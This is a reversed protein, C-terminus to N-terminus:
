NKSKVQIDEVNEEEKNESNAQFNGNLPENVKEEEEDNEKEDEEEEEKREKIASNQLTGSGKKAKVEDQGSQIM